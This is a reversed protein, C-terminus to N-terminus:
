PALPEFDTELGFTRPGWVALAADTRMIEPTPIGIVRVRFGYRLSETTVPLGAEHDLISILDPVTAVVAGDREAILNENQFEIEMTEGECTEIGEITVSGRVFGAETRRAVDAIKGEFLEVAEGYTSERTVRRIEALVDDGANRIAAGLDRALSMTGPIATDKVEQGSMPYDSLYSVGGMRVTVGRALWELRDNDTTEFLTTNGHEDSVAAPWGDVGYVNFTEHQLEPFARGMGDADVLPLGRRAAVGIPITSNIGGCEIPMTADAKKGLEREVRELSDLPERGNPIKEVAVTPAGMLATPVVFDEPDLDAPDLLEVPGHEAIAQQAVLKGVHPDGGGGTGLVTAGIAIDDVAAEDIVTM